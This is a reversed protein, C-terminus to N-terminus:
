KGGGKGERATHRAGNGNKKREKRGWEEIRNGNWTRRQEEKKRERERTVQGRKWGWSKAEGRGGKMRRLQKGQERVGEFKGKRTGYSLGKGGGKERKM